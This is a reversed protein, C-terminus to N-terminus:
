GGPASGHCAPWGSRAGCTSVFEHPQGVTSPQSRYEMRGAISAKVAAPMKKTAAAPLVPGCQPEMVSGGALKAEVRVTPATSRVARTASNELRPGVASPKDLGSTVAGPTSM